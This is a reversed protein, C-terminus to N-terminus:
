HIELIHNYHEIFVVYADKVTTNFPDEEYYREVASVCYPGFLFEHCCDIFCDDCKTNIKHDTDETNSPNITTEANPGFLEYVPCPHDEEVIEKMNLFRVDSEFISSAAKSNLADNTVVVNREFGEIRKLLEKHKSDRKPFCNSINEEGQEKANSSPAVFAYQTLTTQVNPQITEM